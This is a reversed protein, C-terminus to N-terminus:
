NVSLITYKDHAVHHKSTHIYQPYKLTNLTNNEICTDKFFTHQKTCMYKLKHLHHTIYKM